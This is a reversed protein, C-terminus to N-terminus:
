DSKDEIEAPNRTKNLAFSMAARTIAEMDVRYDQDYGRDRGRTKLFFISATTDGAMARKTFADEVEDVVRERAEELVEKVEPNRQAIDSVAKRSCGIAQAVRSLNGHYKIIQEKVLEHDIPIGKMPQRTKDIARTM